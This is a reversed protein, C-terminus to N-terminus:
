SHRRCSKLEVIIKDFCVFDPSFEKNLVKGKYTVHFSKERQYPIERLRLEEEIAEQYIPETFGCGITKHVEMAVGIIKFTEDSHILKVSM